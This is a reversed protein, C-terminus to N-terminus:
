AYRKFSGVSLHVEACKTCIQKQIAKAEEFNLMLEIRHTEQYEILSAHSLCWGWLSNMCFLMMEDNEVPIKSESAGAGSNKCEGCM